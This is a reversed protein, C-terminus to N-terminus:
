LLINGLIDDDHQDVECVKEAFKRFNLKVYAKEKEYICDGISCLLDIANQVDKLSPKCYIAYNRASKLKCLM